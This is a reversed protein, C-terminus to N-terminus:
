AAYLLTRSGAIGQLFFPNEIAGAMVLDVPRGFLEELSEKLGFYRDFLSGRTSPELEILFGLDSAEPDFSGRAASGFLELRRVTYRQCLATLEQMRDTIAREMPPHGEEEASDYSM